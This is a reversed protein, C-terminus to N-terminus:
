LSYIMMGNKKLPDIFLQDYPPDYIVTYFQYGKEFHLRYEDEMLEEVDKTTSKRLVM